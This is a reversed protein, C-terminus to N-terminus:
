MMLRRLAFSAVSCLQYIHKRRLGSQLNTYGCRNGIEPRAEVRQSNSNLKIQIQGHRDDFAHVLQVEVKRIELNVALVVNLACEM